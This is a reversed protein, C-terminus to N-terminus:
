GEAVAVEREKEQSVVPVAEFNKEDGDGAGFVQDLHEKSFKPTLWSVVPVVALPLLMSISGVMPAIDKIFPQLEPRLMYCLFTILGVGIMMMVFAGLALWQFLTNM